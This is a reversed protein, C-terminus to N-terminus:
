ELFKRVVFRALEGFLFIGLFDALLDKPDFSRGIIFLQSLEEVTVIIAVLLSGALYRLKGFSATKAKFLLNVLFSLIGMLLFHGLKDFYPVGRGFQMFYRTGKLDALVVIGAILFVYVATLLKIKQSM